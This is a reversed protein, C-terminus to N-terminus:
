DLSVNSVNPTENTNKQEKSLSDWIKAADKAFKQNRQLFNCVEVANIANFERVCASYQSCNCQNHNCYAHTYPFDINPYNM